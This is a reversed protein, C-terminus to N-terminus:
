VLPAFDTEQYILPNTKVFANDTDRFVYQWGVATNTTQIVRVGFSLRVDYERVLPTTPQGPTPSYDRQDLDAGNFLLFGPPAGLFTTQNVKGAKAIATAVYKDFDNIRTVVQLDATVIRRFLTVDGPIAVNNDAWKFFGKPSKFPMLEGGVRISKRATKLRDVTSNGPAPPSSPVTYEVVCKELDPHGDWKTFTFKTAWIEANRPHTEYAVPLPDVGNEDQGYERKASTTGEVDVTVEWGKTLERWKREDPM